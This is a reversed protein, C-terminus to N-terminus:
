KRHGPTQLRIIENAIINTLRRVNGTERDTVERNSLKGQVLIRSGKPVNNVLMENQYPNFSVIDHWTTKSQNVGQQDRYSETTALSFVCTRDSILRPDNGVRGLLQVTNLATISLHFITDFWWLIFVVNITLTPVSIIVNKMHLGDKLKLLSERKNRELIQPLHVLAPESYCIKPFKPPYLRYFFNYFTWLDLM